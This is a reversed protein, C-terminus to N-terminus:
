HPGGQVQSLSGGLGGRGGLATTEGGGVSSDGGSSGCFVNRVGQAYAKLSHNPLPLIRAGRSMREMKVGAHM